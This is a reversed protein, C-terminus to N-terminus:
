EVLVVAHLFNQWHFLISVLVGLVVLSVVDIQLGIGAHPSKVIWVAVLIWIHFHGFNSCYGAHMLANLGHASAVLLPFSASEVEGLFLKWICNRCDHLNVRGLHFCAHQQSPCTCSNWIEVSVEEHVPPGVVVHADEDICSVFQPKCHHHQM